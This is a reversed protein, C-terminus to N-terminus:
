TTREPDEIGRLRNWLTYPVDNKAVFRHDADAEMDGTAVFEGRDRDLLDLYTAGQKLRGGAPLVRIQKLEDDSFEPITRHLEKQDYANPLDDPLGINQGALRNPNLDREIEEPHKRETQVPKTGEGRRTGVNPHRDQQEM